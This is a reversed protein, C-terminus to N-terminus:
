DSPVIPEYLVDAKLLAEYEDIIKNNRTHVTENMVKNLKEQM